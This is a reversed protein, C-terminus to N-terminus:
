KSHVADLTIYDPKGLELSSINPPKFSPPPLKVEPLVAPISKRASLNQTEPVAPEVVVTTDTQGIWDDEQWEVGKTSEQITDVPEADEQPIQQELALREKFITEFNSIIVTTVRNMNAINSAVRIPDDVRPRFLNMGFVVGLNSATMKNVDSLAAVYHLLKCLQFLFEKNEAPMKSNIFDLVAQAIEADPRKDAISGLPVIVEFADFTMLPEPLDRIIQKLIGGVSHVFHGKVNTLPIPQDTEIAVKLSEMFNSNGPVRFVGETQLGYEFMINFMQQISPPLVKRNLRSDMVMLQELKIGFVKNEGLIEPFVTSPIDVIKRRANVKQIKQNRKYNLTVNGFSDKDKGASGEIKKLLEKDVNIDVPKINTISELQQFLKNGTEFYCSYAYILSRLAEWHIIDRKRLQFELENYLDSYSGNLNKSLEFFESQLKELKTIYEARANPDLKDFTTPVMEKKMTNPDVSEVLIPPPTLNFESYAKRLEDYKQRLKGIETDEKQLKQTTNMYEVTIQHVQQRLTSLSQFNSGFKKLVNSFESNLNMFTSSEILTQGFKLEQEQLSLSHKKMKSLRKTTKKYFQTMLEHDKNMKIFHEQIVIPPKRANAVNTGTGGSSKKLSSVWNTMRKALSDQNAVPVSSSSMDLDKKTIQQLKKDNQLLSMVSSM